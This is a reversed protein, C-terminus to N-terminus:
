EQQGILYRFGLGFILVQDDYPQAGLTLVVPITAPGVGELAWDEATFSQYRINMTLQLRESRLYSLRMQLYDLTSELDPFQSPGGAASTVNIESTGVSRIYDLQFDFKDAIQRVRIGGGATYFDDNNTARWDPLGFQESGSQESDMNEYGGTLYFSAKDTLAWSLDGSLRLEEAATIGLQSHTYDDEAYLANVTVTVPSGEPSYVTTLDAFVRYRYAFNYKRLLPNQGLTAALAEDYVGDIDRESAGGKIDVLFTNSPRWRLRGWGSDETQKSVEQFNRDITKRDYGASIRVTDFLDYDASLNLTSREFSYPINPELEGSLFTDTIVRTWLDQATQNDREDYRFALRVRLKDVVKSSVTFAFNTTDVEGDLNARPLAGAPLNANSTYPLFAQDQEMRGVAASFGVVTQYQSFMYNGSVSVQQYNNDPAQAMAPFEAGASATFPTEWILADNSNDFDSLYWGLSVSGNEGSYRVKINVEDTVYDIPRPFLSSQTFSAGSYLDVGDHDQRRYNASFRFRDALLYRGGIDLFSRESEINRQVLSADLETFGSTLPASVWGGPLSLTDAATQQFITYSTFFRQRPIERYALNYDFSGQRGGELEAFRSDLGLDELTWRLQHGDTTYTGEGDVNVYIGEDGYGSANGFYASDDSVNTAGIEYDARYGSEFPCFECIWDSTDAAQANAISTAMAAGATAALILIRTKSM